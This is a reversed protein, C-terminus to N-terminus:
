KKAPPPTEDRFGSPVDFAGAPPAGPALATIEYVTKTQQPRGGMEFTSEVVSKLLAGGAGAYEEALRRDFAADGTDVPRAPAWVSFGRDAIRPATWVDQVRTTKTRLSSGMAEVETTYVARFRVRRAATGAIKGGNEDATREVSPSVITVKAPTGLSGIRLFAARTKTKPDIRVVTKGGDRTILFDGAPLLPNRSAVVDARGDDGRVWGLVTVDAAVIEPSASGEAHVSATFRWGAPRPPAAAAALLFFFFRM